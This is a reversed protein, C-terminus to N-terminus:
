NDILEVYDPSEIEISAALLGPLEILFRKKASGKIKLLKGEIGNVAGDCVLKVRAGYMNPTIEDPAYFKPTKTYTIAIIFREMDNVPVTMPTGYPAGKVFRYQLTETKAVVKDLDTKKSHVFLLDNIIPVQVRVRRRGNDIIKYTMPTFVQFGLEGLQKYAPLKANPRKLDRMVFWEMQTEDAM